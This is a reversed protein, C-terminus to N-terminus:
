PRAGTTATTRRRRHLMGFCGAASARPPPTAANARGRVADGFWRSVAGAPRAEYGGSAERGADARETPRAAKGARMPRRQFM